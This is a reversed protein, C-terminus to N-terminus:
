IPRRFLYQPLDMPVDMLLFESDELAKINISNLEYVGYGDRAELIQEGVQIKGSVLFVYAGNGLKKMSYEEEHGADWKAWNFWADQHIWAGQDEPNPSLIQSFTNDKLIDKLCVQDYRPTLDLERPFLWIQLFKVPDKQDANYESHAVGTGASMVQIEGKHILGGNGMSDKHELTGSLPISVIEMDRHPHTGFGEGGIVYDDNLVRLVGFNIRERDYYNAFSFTHASKLWFHNSMGRTDAKHLITKM